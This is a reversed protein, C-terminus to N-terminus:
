RAAKLLVEIMRRSVEKVSFRQVTEERALRMAANDKIAQGNEMASSAEHADPMAWKADNKYYKSWPSGAEMKVFSEKYPIITSNEATMYEMNGSYGTAIVPIGAAMAETIPLGWGESHHLSVYCDCVSYLAGMELDTLTDAIITVGAQRIETPTNGYNKIILRFQGPHRVNLKAFAALVGQVNKRPNRMDTVTLFTFRSDKRIMRRAAACEADGIPLREIAHPVVHVNPHQQVLARRCFESPTMVAACKALWHGVESSARTTEWTTFAVLPPDDPRMSDAIRGITPPSGHVLLANAHGVAGTFEVGM